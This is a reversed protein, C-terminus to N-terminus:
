SSSADVAGYLEVAPTVRGKADAAGRLSAGGGSGKKGGPRVILVDLAGTREQFAVVDDSPLKDVRALLPAEAPLGKDAVEVVGAGDSTAGSDPSVRYLLFGVVVLVLGAWTWVRIHERYTGMIPLSFTVTTAPLLLAYAISKIMASGHKTLYLGIYNFLFNVAVYGVLLLFATRSSLWLRLGQAFLAPQESLPVGHPGGFGPLCQLPALLFGIALQYISVWQTLFLVDLKRRRFSAEKYVSSLAMPVNSAFYILCSWWHVHTSAVTRTRLLNPVITVIAGLFIIGAGTVQTFTYRSGLLGMSFVMTWPILTQNLLTQFVGPTYVAGMATFFTGLCDLAGMVLFKYHSDGTGQLRYKEPRRIMKPYLCVGGYVVYLLNVGQSVFYSHKEGYMNYMSKFMAFNAAGSIVLAGILLLMRYQTIKKKGELGM